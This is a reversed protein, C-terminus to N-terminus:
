KFLDEIKTMALTFAAGKNWCKDVELPLLRQEFENALVEVSGLLAIKKHHCIYGLIMNVAKTKKIGGMGDMITKLIEDYEVMFDRLIENSPKSNGQLALAARAISVETPSHERETRRTALDRASQPTGRDIYDATEPPSGRSVRMYQAVGCRTIAILRNQGTLINDKNDLVIGQAHLVWNGAAMEDEYERVKKWKVPRNKKNKRLMEQAKEPTILETTDTILPIGAGFRIADRTESGRRLAKIGKGTKQSNKPKEPKKKM